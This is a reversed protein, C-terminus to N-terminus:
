AALTAYGDVKSRTIPIQFSERKNESKLYLAVYCQRGETVAKHIVTSPVDAWKDFTAQSILLIDVPIRMSRVADYLAVTEKRRSKVERKIVLFDLDSTDRFDGRAYSGFLFIQEPMAKQVLRTIAERIAKESIM